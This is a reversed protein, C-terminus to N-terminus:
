PQGSEEYHRYFVEFASELEKKDSISIYLQDGNKAQRSRLIVLEAERSRFREPEYPVMVTYTSRGMTFTDIVFMYYEAGSDTDVIVAVEEDQAANRDTRGAQRGPQGATGAAKEPRRSATKM